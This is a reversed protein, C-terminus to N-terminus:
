REKESNIRKEARLPFPSCGVGNFETIFGKSNHAIDFNYKKLEHNDFKGPNEDKLANGYYKDHFYYTALLESGNYKSQNKVRNEFKIYSKDVRNASNLCDIVNTEDGNVFSIHCSNPTVTAQMFSDATIYATLYGDDTDHIVEGSPMYIASSTLKYKKQIHENFDSAVFNNTEVKQANVFGELTDMLEVYQHKDILDFVSDIDTNVDSTIQNITARVKDLALLSSDLCGRVSNKHTTIQNKRM